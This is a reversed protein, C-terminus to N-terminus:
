RRAQFFTRLLAGAEDGLVGRTLRVRHNLRRDQVICGLSGCMGTKPDSAAYVLRSIRALVIAGACMACPELTVYLTAGPLRSDGLSDAAQRIVAMEAHATPDRGNRTLNFSRALVREGRVLVAGVPVESVREAAQAQELAERMWREDAPEAAEFEACQGRTSRTAQVFGGLRIGRARGPTRELWGKRALADLVMGARRSSLGTAVGIERLSPARGDQTLREAVFDLVEWEPAELPEPRSRMPPHAFAPARLRPRRAPRGRAAM